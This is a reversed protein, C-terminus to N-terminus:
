GCKEDPLFLDSEEPKKPNYCVKAQAGEKFQSRMDGDWESVGQYSTGNVQYTYDIDTETTTKKTKKTRGSSTKRRSTRTEKELSVKVVTGTTEATLNSGCAAGSFVLIGIILVSFIKRHNKM